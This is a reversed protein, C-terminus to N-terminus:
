INPYYKRLCEPCIGHSFAAASHDSIYKEITHWEDKDDRIKKCHSCIPLLGELQKVQKESNEAKIREQDVIMVVLGLASLIQLGVLVGFALHIAKDVNVFALAVVYAGWTILSWAAILKGFPAIRRTNKLILVGASIFIMARLGKLLSDALFANRQILLISGIWILIWAVIIYLNWKKYDYGSFRYIGLAISMFGLIHLIEGILLHQRYALPIIGSWLVFGISNLFFGASWYGPGIEKRDVQRLFLLGMGICAFVGAYGLFNERLTNFFITM